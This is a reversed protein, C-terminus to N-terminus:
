VFVTYKITYGDDDDDVYRVYMYQIHVILTKCARNTTFIFFLLHIFSHGFVVSQRIYM